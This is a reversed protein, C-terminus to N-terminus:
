AWTKKPPSKIEIQVSDELAEHFHPVGARHVWVDGAQAFYERGDIVCRLKGKALYCISEHDHHIHEPSATGKKLNIELCVMDDGVIMPKLAMNGLPRGEIATIPVERVTSGRVFPEPSPSLARPDVTM